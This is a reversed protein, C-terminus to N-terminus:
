RFMVVFKAHVMQMAAIRAAPEEVFVMPGSIRIALTTALSRPM